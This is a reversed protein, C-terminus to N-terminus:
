GPTHSPRSGSGGSRSGRALAHASVLEVNGAVATHAKDLALARRLGEGRASERRHRTLLDEGLRGDDGLRTLAHELEQKRVVREVAGDAVPTTLAVQLILRHAVAAVARTEVLGGALASDLVLVQAREDLRDHGTADLAGATDTVGILNCAHLIEAGSTTAVLELDASVDLLHEVRLHRTVNNVEAGDTREGRAGAREVATRPLELLGLRNVHEVANAAIDADVRAVELDHAHKGAGVVVHVLLPDVVLCAKGNVTELVLTQRGRKHTLACVKHRGRPGLRELGDAGTQERRARGAVLDLTDNTAKGVGLRHDDELVEQVAEARLVGNGVLRKARVGRDVAHVHAAVVNEVVANSRDLLGVIGHEDAGVRAVLSRDDVRAQALAVQAVAEVKRDNALLDVQGVVVVVKASVGRRDDVKSSATTGTGFAELRSLLREDNNAAADSIVGVTRDDQLIHGLEHESVGVLKRRRRPVAKAEEVTRRRTRTRTVNAVRSGARLGGLEDVQEVRVVDGGLANGSICKDHVLTVVAVNARLEGVNAQRAERVRFLAHGVDVRLAARLERTGGYRGGAGRTLVPLDETRECLHKTHRQRVLVRERHTVAHKIYRRREHAM